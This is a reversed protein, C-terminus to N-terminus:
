PLINHNEHLYSTMDFLTNLQNILTVFTHLFLQKLSHNGEKLLLMAQCKTVSEPKLANEYIIKTLASSISPM